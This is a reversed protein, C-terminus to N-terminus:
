RQNGRVARDHAKRSQIRSIRWCMTRTSTASPSTTPPPTSPTYPRNATVIVTDGDDTLLTMDPKLDGAEVWDGESPSWFPHEYTATLTEIGDDTAISLKNFHKDDETIILRTVERPSTEGTEPDTAQVTDGAKIDEIDKTTGDAVGVDADGGADVGVDSETELALGDVGEVDCEAPDGVEGVVWGGCGDDASTATLTATLGNFLGM